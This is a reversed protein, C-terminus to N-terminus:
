FCVYHLWSTRSGLATSFIQARSYSATSQYHSSQFMYPIICLLQFVPFFSCRGPLSGFSQSPQPFILYTTRCKINMTGHM